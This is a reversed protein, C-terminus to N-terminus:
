ETYTIFSITSGTNSIKNWANWQQTLIGLNIRYNTVHSFLGKCQTNFRKSLVRVCIM